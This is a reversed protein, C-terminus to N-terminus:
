IWTHINGYWCIIHWFLSMKKVVQKKSLAFFKDQWFFDQDFHVTFNHSVNLFRTQKALFSLNVSWLFNIILCRFNIRRSPSAPHTLVSNLFRNAGYIGPEAGPLGIFQVKFYHHFHFIFTLPTSLSDANDLRWAMLKVDAHHSRQNAWSRTNRTSPQVM